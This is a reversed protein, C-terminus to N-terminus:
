IGQNYFLEEQLVYNLESHQTDRILDLFCNECIYEKLTPLFYLGGGSANCFICSKKYQGYLEEEEEEYFMNKSYNYGDYTGYYKYPSSFKEKVNKIISYVFYNAKSLESLKVFEHKTHPNYYGVSLNACSIKESLHDADSMVGSAPSYEFVKGIEALATEFELTGYQNRLCIIDSNGRRDLILGYPIDKFDHEETIFTSVGVCGVEEAISFIFNVKITKLINLIIYIGCKDDGGIVGYGSLIDGRITIYDTLIADTDDQVTDMHASLLPQNKYDLNYINGLRDIYFPVDIETLYKQIFDSVEEEKYSQSPIKFIDMLLKKDLDM